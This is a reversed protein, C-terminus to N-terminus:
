ASLAGSQIEMDRPGRPASSWRRAAYWGSLGLVALLLIALSGYIPSSPSGAEAAADARPAVAAEGLDATDVKGQADLRVRLRVSGEPAPPLKATYTGPTESATAAVEEVRDGARELSLVISAGAVPENTAYRTVFIKASSETDPELPANKLTIEFDGIRVSRVEAAGGTTVTATNGDGHDEGGHASVFITGGFLSLATTVMLAAVVLHGRLKSVIKGM